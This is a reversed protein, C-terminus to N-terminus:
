LIEYLKLCFNRLCIFSRDEDLGNCIFSIINDKFVCFNKESYIMNVGLEIYNLICNVYDLIGGSIFIIVYVFVM